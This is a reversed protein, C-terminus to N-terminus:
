TLGVKQIQQALERTPSLILVQTDRVTKDISELAGITFTATKGTGSQAQAIVDKGEIIPKIARAQIASPKEFGYTFIGRLLDEKLGMEEFNEYVTLKSSTEVGSDDRCSPFSLVFLLCLLLPTNRPSSVALQQSWGWACRRM